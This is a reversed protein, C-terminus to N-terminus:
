LCDEMAHVVFTEHRTIRHVLFTVACWAGFERTIAILHKLTIVEAKTNEAKITNHKKM